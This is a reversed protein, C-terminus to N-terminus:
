GNPNKREKWPVESARQKVRLDIFKALHEHLGFSPQDLIERGQLKTNFKALVISADEPKAEEQGPRYRLLQKHFREVDKLVKPNEEGVAILFQVQNRFGYPDPDRLANTLTLGKFAMPPSIMAVARVDQGQKGTALPPWSWDGKAYLMAITGGMESGILTLQEINLEQKHHREMLYKKCAEVDFQVMAQFQAPTLKDASLARPSGPVATSEGHGRLDPVLVSAGFFDGQFYVALDKFDQRNGKFQHLMVIPITDKGKSGPYFTAKLQMGDKTLLTVNEPPALQAEQADVHREWAATLLLASLLTITSRLNAGGQRM